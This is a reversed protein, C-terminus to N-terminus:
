QPTTPQQSSVPPHWRYRSPARCRDLPCAARGCHRDLDGRERHRRRGDPAASALTLVLLHPIRPCFSLVRHTGNVIALLGVRVDCAVGHRILEVFAERAHTAGDTCELAGEEVAFAFVGPPIEFFVEVDVPLETGVIPASEPKGVDSEVRGDEGFVIGFRDGVEGSEDVVAGQAVVCKDRNNAPEAKMHSAERHPEGLCEHVIGLLAVAHAVGFRAHAHELANRLEDFDEFVLRDM